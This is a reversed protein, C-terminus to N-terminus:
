WSKTERWNPWTEDYDNDYDVLTIYGFGNRQANKVINDVDEQNDPHYVQWISGGVHNRILLTKPFDKKSYDHYIKEM